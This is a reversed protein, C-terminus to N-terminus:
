LVKAGKYSPGSLEHLSLRPPRIGFKGFVQAFVEQFTALDAARLIWADHITATPIGMKNCTRTVLELFLAVELRQAMMNPTVYMRSNGKRETIEKVLPLVDASTRKLAKLTKLVSPYVSGFSRQSRIRDAKKQQDKCHNNASCYLVHEFLDKKIQDKELGTAHKLRDYLSGEACHEFFLRVDPKGKTAMLTKKIPSFEPVLQLLDPKFMIAALLYPQASVVDVMVLPGAHEKSRLYPRLVGPMNTLFSHIRGAFEDRSIHREREGNIDSITQELLEQAKDTDLIQDPAIDLYLSETFKLNPLYWNDHELFTRKQTLYASQHAQHLKRAIRATRIVEKRYSGKTEHGGTLLNKFLPRYLASYQGPLYSKGGKENTKHEIIRHEKLKRMIRPYDSIIKKISNALLPCWGAERDIGPAFNKNRALKMKSSYLLHLIARAKDVDTPDDFISKLEPAYLPVMTQIINKNMTIPISNLLLYPVNRETTNYIVGIPSLQTCFLLKKPCIQGFGKTVRVM